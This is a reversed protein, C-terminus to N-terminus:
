VWIEHVLAEVIDEPYNVMLDTFAEWDSDEMAYVNFMSECYNVIRLFKDDSM